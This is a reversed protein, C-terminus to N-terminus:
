LDEDEDEEEGDQQDEELEKAFDQIYNYRADNIYEETYKKEHQELGDNHVEEDFYGNVAEVVIKNFVDLRKVPLSDLECAYVQNHEELHKKYRPDNQLKEQEEESMKEANWPLDYELIQEKTIAIRELDFTVKHRRAYRDLRWAFVRKLKEITSRDISEGSPDKDGFWLVHVNKGLDM